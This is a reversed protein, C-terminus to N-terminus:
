WCQVLLHPCGVLPSEGTKIDLIDWCCRVSLFDCCAKVFAQQLCLRVSPCWGRAVCFQKLLEKNVFWAPILTDHGGRNLKYNLHVMRSSISLRADRVRRM